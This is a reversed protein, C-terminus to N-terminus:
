RGQVCIVPGRDPYVGKNLSTCADHTCIHESGRCQLSAPEDLALLRCGLLVSICSREVQGAHLQFALLVSCEKHACLRRGTPPRMTWAAAMLEYAVALMRELRQADVSAPLNREVRCTASWCSPLTPGLWVAPLCHWPSVSGVFVLSCWAHPCLGRRVHQPRTARRPYTVARLLRGNSRRSSSRCGASTSRVGPFQLRPSAAPSPQLRPYYAAALARKFSRTSFLWVRGIPARSRFVCRHPVTEVEITAPLSRRRPCAGQRCAALGIIGGDDAPADCYTRASPATDGSM